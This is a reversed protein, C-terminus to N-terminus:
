KIPAMYTIVTTPTKEQPIGLLNVGEPFNRTELQQFNLKAALKQFSLNEKNTAFIFGEIPHNPLLKERVQLIEAGIGKKQYSPLLSIGCELYKKNRLMDKNIYTTDPQRLSVSGIFTNTTIDFISYRTDSSLLLKAYYVMRFLALNVPSQMKKLSEPSLKTLFAFKGVEPNFYLQIMNLFDDKTAPRISCRATVIEQPKQNFFGRSISSHIVVIGVLLVVHVRKM